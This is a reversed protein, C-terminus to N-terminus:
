VARRWRTRRRILYATVIGLVWGTIASIVVLWILATQAHGFVYDVRVQRTNRAILLILLVTAAIGLVLSAYLSGRHGYRLARGRRSEEEYRQEERGEREERQERGEENV